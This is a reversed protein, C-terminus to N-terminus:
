NFVNYNSNHKEEEKKNDEYNERMKGLLEWARDLHFKAENPRTVRENYAQYLNQHEEYLHDLGEVMKEKKKEKFGVEWKHSYHAIDNPIKSHFQPENEHDQYFNLIKKFSWRKKPDEELMGQLLELIPEYEQALQENKFEKKGWSRNIMQLSLLGLSYVDAIFPNYEKTTSNQEYLEVVEPAAFKKTLGMISSSPILFTNTSLHCGIGFDSIKYLFKGEDDEATPDEVLIINKSKVDRNAIGNEELKAFGETLKRLVYLLEACLFKKGAELINDLTACGSEMKLLLSTEDDNGDKFVGDYKLFYSTCKSDNMRIKEVTQLLADELMIEELLKNSEEQGFADRKFKKIAIFENQRKDYAKQVNAFGGEGLEELKYIASHDFASLNNVPDTLKNNCIITQRESHFVGNTKVSKITRFENEVELM